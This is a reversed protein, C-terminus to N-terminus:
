LGFRRKLDELRVQQMARTEEAKLQTDIRNVESAINLIEQVWQGERFAKIDSHEWDGFAGYSLKMRKCSIELVPANEGGIQLTLTASESDGEKLPFHNRHHNWVFTYSNDETTISVSEPSDETRKTGVVGGLMPFRTSVKEPSRGEFQSLYLNLSVEVVGLNRARQKREEVAARIEQESMM